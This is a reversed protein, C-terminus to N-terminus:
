AKRSKEYMNTFMQIKFEVTNLSEQLQKMQEMVRERQVQLIDCRAKLTEDGQTSLDIFARIQKIQMGTQKLCCILDLQEADEESFRRVGGETRSVYPLLGEKDYYRITHASLGTKEVMERISYTKNQM